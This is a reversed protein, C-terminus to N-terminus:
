DVLGDIVLGGLWDILWVFLSDILGDVLGDILLGGLWDILWVFLSDIM